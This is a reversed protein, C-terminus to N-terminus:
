KQKKYAVTLDKYDIIFNYRKLFTNGLIGVIEIGDKEKIIDFANTNMIQFIEKFKSEDHFLEIQTYKVDVNQGEIGFATGSAGKKIKHKMKDLVRNDIVSYSAGTDLIFNFTEENNTLKVLLLDLKEYSEPFFMRIEKQKKRYDDAINLISALLFTLAVIFLIKLVIM